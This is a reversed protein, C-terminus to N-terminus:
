LTGGMPDRTATATERAPRRSPGPYNGSIGGDGVGTGADQDQTTAPRQRRKASAMV